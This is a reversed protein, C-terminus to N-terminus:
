LLLGRYLMSPHLAFLLGLASCHCLRPHAEFSLVVLLRGLLTCRLGRLLIGLLTCRLGRLLIGLLTYRLGRLLRACRVPLARLVIGVLLSRCLRGPLLLLVLM